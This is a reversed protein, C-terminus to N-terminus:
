RGNPPRTKVHQAIPILSAGVGLVLALGYTAALSSFPALFTVTLALTTIGFRAARILVDTETRQAPQSVRSSAAEASAPRSSTPTDDGATFRTRDDLMLDAAQNIRSMRDSAFQAVDPDSQRDPHWLRAERKRASEIRERSSDLPLDLLYAAEVPTMLVSRLQQYGDPVEHIPGSSAVLDTSTLDVVCSTASWSTRRTRISRM